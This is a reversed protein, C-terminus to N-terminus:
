FIFILLIFYAMHHIVGDRRQPLKYDKDYSCKAIPYHRRVYCRFFVSGFLATAVSLLKVIHIGAGLRVSIVCIVLNAGTSLIQVLQIIYLKQDSTLLLRHAIASYYNFYTNAGLILVMSFVYIRDFDTAIASKMSVGLVVVFLIFIISLRRFFSKGNQFIDAIRESDGDALPKYLAARMVGGIGGELLVTYGLIQGISQMLGNNESGFSHLLIRASLLGCVATFLQHLVSVGVNLKTASIKRM